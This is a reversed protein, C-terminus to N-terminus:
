PLNSPPFTSSLQASGRADCQQMAATEVACAFLTQNPIREFTHAPASAHGQRSDLKKGCVRRKSGKLELVLPSKMALIMLNSHTKDYLKIVPAGFCKLQVM